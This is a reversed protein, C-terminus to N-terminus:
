GACSSDPLAILHNFRDKIQSDTPRDKQAFIVVSGVVDNLKILAEDDGHALAAPVLRDRLIATSKGAFFDRLDQRLFDDWKREQYSDQDGTYIYYQADAPPKPLARGHIPVSVIQPLHDFRFGLTNDPGNLFNWGYDKLVLGGTLGAWHIHVFQDLNDHFHVPQGTLAISCSDTGLPTQFSSGSFDVPQGNSIVQLRFHYHTSQPYRISAPSIFYLVAVMVGVLGLLAGLGALVRRM